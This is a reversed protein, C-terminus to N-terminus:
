KREAARRGAPGWGTANDFVAVTGPYVHNPARKRADGDESPAESPELLAMPVYSFNYLAMARTGKLFPAARLPDGPSAQM